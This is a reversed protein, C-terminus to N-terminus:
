VYPKHCHPCILASATAGVGHPGVRLELNEPRNDLKDGNIHHVTERRTLSRGIKIAMVARHEMVYNKHHVITKMPELLPWTEAPSSYISIKRYGEGTVAGGKWRYHKPGYCAKGRCTNSCFRRFRNFRGRVPNGCM